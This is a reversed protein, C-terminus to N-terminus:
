HLGLWYLTVCTVVLGGVVGVFLLLVFTVCEIERLVILLVLLCVLVLWTFIFFLVGTYLTILVLTGIYLGTCTIAFYFIGTQYM